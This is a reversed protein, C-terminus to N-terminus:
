RGEGLRSALQGTVAVASASRASFGEGGLAVVVVGHDTPGTAAIEGATTCGILPAGGTVEAIGDLLAQPEYAASAFVILLKATKGGAAASQRRAAPPRRTRLLPAELAL